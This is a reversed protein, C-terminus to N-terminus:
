STLTEGDTKMTDSPQASVRLEAGVSVKWQDGEELVMLSTDGPLTQFKEESDVLTGDKELVLSRPDSTM